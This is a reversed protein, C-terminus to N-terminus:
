NGPGAPAAAPKAHYIYAAVGNADVEATFSMGYLMLSGRQHPVDDISDIKAKPIVTRRLWGVLPRPIWRALRPAKEALVAGIDITPM